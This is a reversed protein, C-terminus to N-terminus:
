RAVSQEGNRNDKELNIGMPDKAIIVRRFNVLPYLIKANPRQPSTLEIYDSGVSVVNALSLSRVNEHVRLKANEAVLKDLDEPKATALQKQLEASKATYYNQAAAQMTQLEEFQAPTLLYLTAMDLEAIAVHKFESLRQALTPRRELLNTAEEQCKVSEPLFAVVCVVLIRLLPKM